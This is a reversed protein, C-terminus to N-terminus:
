AVFKELAERIRVLEAEERSEHATIHEHLVKQLDAQKEVLVVMTRMLETQQDGLRLLRRPVYSM